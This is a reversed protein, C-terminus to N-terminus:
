RSLAAGDEMGQQIALRVSERSQVSLSLKMLRLVLRAVRDAVLQSNRM